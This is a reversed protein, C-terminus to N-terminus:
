EEYNVEKKTVATEKKDGALTFVPYNPHVKKWHKGLEDYADGFLKGKFVADCLRCKIGIM